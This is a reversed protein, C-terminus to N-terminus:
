DSMENNDKNEDEEDQKESGNNSNVSNYNNNDNKDINKVEEELVILYKIYDNLEQVNINKNNEKIIERQCKIYENYKIWKINRNLNLKKIM